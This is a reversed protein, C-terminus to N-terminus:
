PFKAEIGPGQTPVGHDQCNLSGHASSTGLIYCIAIVFNKPFILTMGSSVTRLVGNFMRM